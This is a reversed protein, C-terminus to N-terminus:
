VAHAVQTPEPASGPSIPRSKETAPSSTRGTFFRRLRKSGVIGAGALIITGALTLVGSFIILGNFHKQDVVKLLAGGTPTGVLTAVSVVLYVSGSLTRHTLPWLARPTVHVYRTTSRLSRQSLDHRHINAATLRLRRCLVSPSNTFKHSIRFVM